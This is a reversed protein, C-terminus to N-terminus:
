KKDEPGEGARDGGEMQVLDEPKPTLLNTLTNLFDNMVKDGQIGVEGGLALGVATTDGIGIEANSGSFPGKEFGPVVETKSPENVNQDNRMVVESTTVAVGVKAGGVEVKASAEFVRSKTNEEPTHKTEMVHKLTVDIKVPGIKIKEGLGVGGEVKHYEISKVYNYVRQVANNVGQWLGTEEHGDPDVYSLPSGLAYDYKNWKQPNSLTKLSFERQDPSSFRGETSSYYRAGFYDLNSESDREKGTFHTPGTLGVAGWTYQGDGFPLSYTSESSGGNQTMRVRETGVLDQFDFYTLGNSYTVLHRPGAYGEFRVGLSTQYEVIGHGALDYGFYSVVSSKTRQVRHGMADYVYTTGGAGAGGDVTLIRGEADYTYTHLTDQLLNGAADYCISTSSACNTPTIHNSADFNYQPAPGIGATVNQQWRNGFRDYKYNFAVGKGSQTTTALRNFDDYTYTWGWTLVSDVAVLLNGNPAYSIGTLNYVAPGGYVSSLLSTLRGRNNFTRTESIGTNSSVTGLNDSTPQGLANYQVSSMLTSPHNSDVWTSTVQTLRGAADYSYGYTFNWGGPSTVADGLYNYTYPMSRFTTTSACNSSGVCQSNDLTRGMSDYSFIQAALPASLSGAWASTMRGLPLSLSTFGLAASQDYAFNVTPTGDTYAKSLLRHVGDYNYTTTVTDSGTQNPKPSVRQYLEGARVTDYTYYTNGSEPNSASTLRSLEDYAFSRLNLGGQTIQTLNDLTDYQYSTLFGTAAIDQGCAAPAPTIGLQTANTVECVSTLRGLGDTQSVRTVPSTGNGEDQVQTAGKNYTTSTTAGDPKRVTLVRSMADYTYNTLGYTPDGTTHYPNSQSALRGRNDYTTDAYITGDPASTLQTHQVRALTDFITTTVLNHSADIASSVTKTWPVSATNYTYTTSGGDPFSTSHPRWYFGDTYTYTTQKSNEDTSSVMVGGTCNWDYSKSLPPRVHVTTNTLLSNGCDGYTSTSTTGNVDTAVYVAGSDYHTFSKTLYTSSTVYQQLTTVNGRCPLNSPVCTVSTLQSAGSPQLSAADEDYTYSTQSKVNGGGDTVTVVSPRDVVGNGLTAYSILTKRTPTSAGFDYEDKETVQGTATNYFTDVRSYPGGNLSRYVNIESFPPRIDPASICNSLPSTGDYCTDTEELPTGAASGNYVKRQAEFLGPSFVSGFFNIVTQNQQPDTITTTSSGVRYASNITINSRDYHWVGDPTTRQMSVPSGDNCVIGGSYTYYITGGSPLRM